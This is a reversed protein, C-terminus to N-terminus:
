KENISFGKKLVLEGDEAFIFVEALNLMGTSSIQPFKITVPKFRMISFFQGNLASLPKGGSIQSYPSIMWHEDPINNNKLLVFIHGSITLDSKSVNQLEFNIEVHDKFNKIEINKIELPIKSFDNIIKISKKELVDKNENNDNSTKSSKILNNSPKLFALKIRLEENKNKLNELKSNAIEITKVLESNTTKVYTLATLLFAAAGLLLCVFFLLVFVFSRIYTLNFVKGTSSIFLLSWKKRAKDGLDKKVRNRELERKFNEM